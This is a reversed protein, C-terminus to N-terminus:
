VYKNYTCPILFSHQSSNSKFSETSFKHPFIRVFYRAKKLYYQLVSDNTYVVFCDNTYIDDTEYLLFSQLSTWGWALGLRM